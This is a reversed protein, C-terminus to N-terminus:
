RPGCSLPTAATLTSISSSNSDLSYWEPSSAAKTRGAAWPELGISCATFDSLAAWRQTWGGWQSSAITYSRHWVNGSADLSVVRVAGPLAVMQPDQSVVGQVPMWGLWTEGNVRGMWVADWNDRAAIYAINDSGVVVSSKGKIIAGGFRWGQWNSGSRRNSWMGNWKDKGILYVSDASSAIAPDTAFVGGLHSWPGAAGGPTFGTVWYSDWRDRIAIYATGQPTMTIAPTGVASGGLFTLAGWTQTEASFVGVWLGGWRDRVATITDGYLTQTSATEGDFAGTKGPAQTAGFHYIRLTGNTERWSVSPTKQVVTIAQTGLNFTAKRPEPGSHSSALLALRGSYAQATLWPTQFNLTWPCDAAIDPWHYTTRWMRTPEIVFTPVLFLPNCATFNATVNMPGTLQQTVVPDTSSIDGSWHSFRFFANAAPWLPFWGTSPYYGDTVGPNGTFTGAGPPNVTANIRYFSNFALETTATGGVAPRVTVSSEQAVHRVGDVPTQPSPASVVHESAVFWEFAQPSPYSAGDVTINLGAPKTTVTHTIKTTDSMDVIMLFADVNGGFTADYAEVTPTLAASMVTGTIAAYGATTVAVSVAPIQEPGLWYSGVQGAATLRALLTRNGQVCLAFAQGAADLALGKSEAYSCFGVVTNYLMVSATPDLKRVRLESTFISSVVVMNGDADVQIRGANEPLCTATLLANGSSSLKAVFGSPSGCYTGITGPKAPFATTAEGALHVEGASNVAIGAATTEPFLTSYVINKGTADLKTVFSTRLGFSSSYAGPTVPFGDMPRGTVYVNGAADAAIAAAEANGGFRALYSVAGATDLRAVFINGDSTLPANYGPTVTLSFTRGVVYANGAVDAAIGKVEDQTAGRLTTLWHLTEGNGSFAAVFVDPVLYTPEEAGTVFIRGSAGTAIGRGYEALNTGVYSAYKVVPDIVLRRSRDYAGVEFRVENEADLVFRGAVERRRGPQYIRPALHKLWGAATELTLEGAANLGVREAGGFRLRIQSPDAGAAVEFDYEVQRDREYVVVDIGPWLERYRVRAYHPIGALSVGGGYYNSHSALRGELRPAVAKGGFRMEVRHKSLLFSVGDRAFGIRMGSHRGIAMFQKEAQGRNAEVLLPLHGGGGFLPMSIIVSIWLQM